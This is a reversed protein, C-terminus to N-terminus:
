NNFSLVLAYDQEVIEFTMEYQRQDITVIKDFYDRIKNYNKYNEVYFTCLAQKNELTEISDLVHEVVEQMGRTYPNYFARRKMNFCAAITQLKELPLTFREFDILYKEIGENLIEELRLRTTKALSKNNFLNNQSHFKVAHHLGNLYAMTLFKYYASRTAIKSPLAATNSKCTSM